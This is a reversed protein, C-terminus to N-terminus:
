INAHKEDLIDQLMRALIKDHPSVRMDFDSCPIHHVAVGKQAAKKWGLHKPALLHAENDKSRLVDVKVSQPKLQYKNLIRHMMGTAKTFREFALIDLESMTNNEDFHNKLIYEKKANFRKKFAKWSTLM